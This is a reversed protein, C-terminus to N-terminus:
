VGGYNQSAEWPHKVNSKVKEPEGELAEKSIPQDGAGPSPTEVVGVDEDLKKEVKAEFTEKLQEKMFSKMEEKFNDFDEKKVGKDCACPYKKCVKCVEMKEVPEDVPKPTEQAKKVAELDAKVGEVEKLISAKVDEVAKKFEEVLKQAEEAEMILEEKEISSLVSKAINCADDPTFDTINVDQFQKIVLEALPNMPKRALTWEWAETTKLISPCGETTCSAPKRRQGRGGLSLGTYTGDMIGKWVDDDSPYHKHIQGVVWIAPVEKGSDLKYKTVVNKLTKGPMQNSHSVGILAGGPGREEMKSIIGAIHEVTLIDKERDMVEVTGWGAFIRREKDLVAIGPEFTTM